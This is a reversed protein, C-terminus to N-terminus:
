HTADNSLSNSLNSFYSNDNGNKQKILEELRVANSLVKSKPRFRTRYGM